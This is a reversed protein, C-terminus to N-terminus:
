LGYQLFRTLIVSRPSRCSQVTLALNHNGAQTTMAQLGNGSQLTYAANSNGTQAIAAGDNHGAQSVRAANGVGSQDLVAQNAASGGSRCDRGIDQFRGLREAARRSLREMQRENLHRTYSYSGVGDDRSFTYLYDGNQDVRAALAPALAAGALLAAFAISLRRM